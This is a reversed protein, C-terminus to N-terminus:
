LKKKDGSAQNVKVLAEVAYHDSLSCLEGKILAKLSRAQRIIEVEPSPVELLVHDIWRRAGTTSKKYCDPIFGGTYDLEGSLASTGMQLLSTMQNFEVKNFADVNLDGVLLQPVGPSKFQRFLNKIQQLQTRRVEQNEPNRGAQMHTAAMQLKLGSPHALEILSAGKASFCDAGLCQHYHINKLLKYPYKSLIFVGSGALQYFKEIGLYHTYPYISGITQLIKKRFDEIFAEQLFIIDYQGKLLEKAIEDTREVQLSWKVPKPIMYVNWSLLKLEGALSPLTCLLAVLILPWRSIM